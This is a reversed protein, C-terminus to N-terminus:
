NAISCKVLIELSRELAIVGVVVELRSVFVCYLTVYNCGLREQVDSWNVLM